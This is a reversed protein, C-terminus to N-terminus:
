QENTSSSAVEVSDLDRALSCTTFGPLTPFACRLVAADGRPDFVGPPRQTGLSSSVRYRLVYGDVIVSKPRNRPM